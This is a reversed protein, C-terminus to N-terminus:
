RLNPLLRVNRKGEIEVVAYVIGSHRPQYLVVGARRAEFRGLLSGNLGVLRVTAGAPLNFAWQSGHPTISWAARTTKGPQIGSISDGSSSLLAINDIWFTANGEGIARFNLRNVQRALLPGTLVGGWGQQQFASWKLKMTRWVSDTAPLAILYDDYNKVTDTAIQLNFTGGNSHWSAYDFQIGISSDVLNSDLNLGAEVYVTYGLDVPQTMSAAAQMAHGMGARVPFSLTLTSPLGGAAYATWPAKSPQDSAPNQDEFQDIWVTPRAKGTINIQISDSNGLRLWRMGAGLNDVPIRAVFAEQPGDWAGDSAALELVSDGLQAKPAPAGPARIVTGSILLTDGFELNKNNVALQVVQDASPAPLSANTRLVTMGFGPVILKGDWAAPVPRSSPGSNPAAYAESTSGNWSYQQSSFSYIWGRALTPTVTTTCPVASMNLFLYATDAGNTLAHSELLTGGTVTTALPQASDIAWVKSVMWNGWYPANPALDISSGADSRPPVFLSLTGYTGGASGDPNGSTAGYSEWDISMAQGGFKQVLQALMMAMGTSNEPRMTLDMSIVSANFESLSIWRSGPDQLNRSLMAALTDLNPGLGRLAALMADPTPAATTYYPYAHFDFGDLYRMGDAVEAGGVLRLFEETWTNGDLDASGTGSFDYTSLTPGLVWISPDVAKMAKAYALFKRAYEKATVPGGEEWDGNMENGVQWFRIGMHQDINAYRVWAAAEEPTGTGYNVCIMAESGPLSDLYNMFLAFTWNPTGTGSYDNTRQNGPHASMAWAQTQKAQDAVNSTVLVGNSWARIEGIQVGDAGIGLPRLALFRMSGPDLHLTTVAGTVAALARQSFAADPSGYANWGSTTVAGVAVSDPRLTGWVIQVSDVTTANVLDLAVWADSAALPDSWWLTSDVGDTLNSYFVSGYNSKTTGRYLTNSTFGPAVSDSSPHWIGVSDYSGAGNWHYQNSTSGNPFRFLRFGQEQLGRKMEAYIAPSNWIPLVTGTVRGTRLPSATATVAGPTVTYQTAEAISLLVACSFISGMVRMNAGKPIRIRISASVAGHPFVRGCHYM